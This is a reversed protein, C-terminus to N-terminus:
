KVLTEINRRRAAEKYKYEINYGLIGNDVESQSKNNFFTKVRESGM